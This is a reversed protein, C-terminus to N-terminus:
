VTLEVRNGDPDLVVAEYYGDGTTRPGDVAGIAAALEDVREKSGVSFAIHARLGTERGPMQMLELRAGGSLELFYSSFGSATNVYKAGARADLWQEYWARLRELDDTYVAVHEIRASAV